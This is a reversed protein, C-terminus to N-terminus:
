GGPPADDSCIGAACPVGPECEALLCASGVCDDDSLCHGEELYCTGVPCSGDCIPGWCLYGDDCDDQTICRGKELVCAGSQCREGEGCGDGGGCDPQQESADQHDRSVNSDDCAATGAMAWCFLMFGLLTSRMTLTGATATRGYSVNYSREAERGRRTGLDHRALSQLANGADLSTSEPKRAPNEPQSPTTPDGAMRPTTIASRYSSSYSSPVPPMPLTHAARWRTVPLSTASFNRRALMAVLGSARCRKM